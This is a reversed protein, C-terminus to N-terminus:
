NRKFPPKVKYTKCYQSFENQLAHTWYEYLENVVKDMDLGLFHAVRLCKEASPLSQHLEMKNIYALSVGTGKQVAEYSLKKRLRAERIDEVFSPFYLPTKSHGSKRLGRNEKM